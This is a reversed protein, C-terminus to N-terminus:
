HNQATDGETKGVPAVDHGHGDVRKQGIDYCFVNTKKNCKRDQQRGDHDNGVGNLGHGRTSM